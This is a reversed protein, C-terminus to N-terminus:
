INKNRIVDSFVKEQRHPFGGSYWGSTAIDSEFLSFTGCHAGYFAYGKCKM